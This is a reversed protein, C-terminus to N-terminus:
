SDTRVMHGFVLFRRGRVTIETPCQSKGEMLWRPDFGPVADSIRLDFLHDREGTIQLFHENSWIVEETEPRFIVMPLPANVMTDKAAIDINTSINEIYSLIERRRVSNRQRFYLFLVLVIVGEVVALTYKGVVATAIAFAALFIFYLRFSPELLHSLGKKHM